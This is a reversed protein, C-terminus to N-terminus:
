KKKRPLVKVMFQEEASNSVVKKSPDCSDTETFTAKMTVTLVHQGAKRAPYSLASSGHGNTLHLTVHDLRRKGETMTIAATKDSADVSVKAVIRVHGGVRAPKGVKIDLPLKFPQPVCASPSASPSSMTSSMSSSPLAAPSASGPLTTSAEASGSALYIGGAAALTLSCAAVSIGVGRTFATM